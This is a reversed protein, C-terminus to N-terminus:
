RRYQAKNLGYDQYISRLGAELSIKPRWGMAFLKSSDLLKRPTGDPKSPDTVIDGTFGAIKAILKAVEMITMDSGCGINIHENGKYNEMLYVTADAVDDIHMFERMAKGTGWLTVTKSGSEVAEYFKRILNPIVHGNRLNYNDGPGYLNCPMCSIYNTEYQQNYAKCMKLGAIKAIAYGYNTEELPGTLLYEEKIPQPCDRPYICGSGMFMLNKVGNRYASNIVNCTIMQNIYIFDAPSTNNAVIGGVKAAALVVYDPKEREFFADTAAQNTLDLEKHTRTVFNTYGRKQLARMIASGVLGAHGAIYIKDSKNM